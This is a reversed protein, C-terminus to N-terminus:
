RIEIESSSTTPQPQEGWTDTTSPDQASESAGFGTASGYGPVESHGNSVDSSTDWTQTDASADSATDSASMMQGRAEAMAGQARNGLHRATGSATTSAKRTWSMLKDRLMNRRARGREPDLFYMLAIGAGFGALLTIGPTFDPTTKQPETTLRVNRLNKATSQASAQADNAAKSGSLALATGLQAAGKMLQQGINSASAQSDSAASQAKSGADSAIRSADSALKSAQRGADEAIDSAHAAADRGYQAAMDALHEAEKTLTKRVEDIKSAVGNVPTDSSAKWPMTVNM